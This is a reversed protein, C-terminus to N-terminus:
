KEFLNLYKGYGEREMDSKQVFRLSASNICYRLGAPDPGDPFVHGLHSGNNSSKVETRIMGLSSDSSESVNTKELPKTFSPWGSGSDFKDKSSFLPKGTVVDVYIGERHNDWYENKFPPETGCEQTVHYQMPTLQDKLNEIKKDNM